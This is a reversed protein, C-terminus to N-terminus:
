DDTSCEEAQQNSDCYATSHQRYVYLTSALFNIFGGLGVGIIFALLKHRIFIEFFSTLVLYSGVNVSLGVLSSVVFKVWQRTRPQRPRESFTMRRNLLWNWTVAPWFSLVRAIRHEIGITQLGLYFIIDIVFGSAGVVGFYLVRAVTGFKFKYLRHLHRVFNLQQRWNMKSTGLNRDVFGISVEKVRLNGRVMLELAIKYGIPNLIEPNPLRRLDTAFFGSMPDSCSVLPRTMLTALYSNLFRWISWNRDFAGGRTYRSGVVMECDSDLASIMDIIREPPHSLDADLVVLREFQVSQIGRLVSLSLDRPSECRTEMRVPFFQSLEAVIAESGDNSNDDIILLEWEIGSESLAAHIRNVLTKINAAEQFTPVVISIPQHKKSIDIEIRDLENPTDSGKETQHQRIIESQNKM